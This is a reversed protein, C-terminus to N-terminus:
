IRLYKSKTDLGLKLKKALGNHFQKTAGATSFSPSVNTVPKGMRLTTGSQWFPLKEEEGVEM